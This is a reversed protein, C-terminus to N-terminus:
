LEITLPAAFSNRKFDRGAQNIPPRFAGCGHPQLRHASRIRQVLAAIAMAM